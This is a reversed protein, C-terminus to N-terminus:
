NHRWSGFPLVICLWWSLVLLVLALLLLWLGYLLLLEYLLLLWNRPLLWNWPGRSGCKVVAIAKQPVPALIWVAIMVSYNVM